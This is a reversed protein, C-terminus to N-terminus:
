RRRCPATPSAATANAQVLYSFAEVIEQRQTGPAMAAFDQALIRHGTRQETDWIWSEVRAGGVKPSAILWKGIGEATEEIVTLPTGGKRAAAIRAHIITIGNEFRNYSTGLIPFDALDIEDLGIDKGVQRMGIQV